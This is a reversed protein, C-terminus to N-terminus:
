FRLYCKEQMVSLLQETTLNDSKSGRSGPVVKLSDTKKLEAAKM